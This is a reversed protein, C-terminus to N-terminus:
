QNSWYGVLHNYMKNFDKQIEKYKQVAAPKPYIINEQNGKVIDEFNSILKLGYAALISCGKLSSEPQDTFQKYQTIRVWNKSSM